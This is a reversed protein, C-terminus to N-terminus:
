SQPDSPAPTKSYNAEAAFCLRLAWSLVAAACFPAVGTAAPMAALVSFEESAPRLGAFRRGPGRTHLRSSVWASVPLM